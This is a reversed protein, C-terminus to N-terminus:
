GNYIQLATVVLQSQMWTYKPCSHLAFIIASETKTIPLPHIHGSLISHNISARVKKRDYSEAGRGGGQGGEGTLQIEKETKMHTTTLSVSPLPPPPPRPALDYLRLFAQGETDNM